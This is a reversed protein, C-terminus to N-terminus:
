VKGAVTVQDPLKVGSIEAAIAHSASFALLALACVGSLVFNVKSKM